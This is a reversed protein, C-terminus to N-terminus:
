IWFTGCKSSSTQIELSTMANIKLFSSTKLYRWTPHSTCGRKWPVPFKGHGMGNLYAAGESTYRIFLGRKPSKRGGVPWAGSKMVGPMSGPTEMAAKM